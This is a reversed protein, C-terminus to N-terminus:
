RFIVQRMVGNKDELIIKKGEKVEKSLFQELSIAQRLVETLTVGKEEALAKLANNVEESLNVTLKTKETTKTM